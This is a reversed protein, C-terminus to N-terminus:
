HTPVAVHAPAVGLRAIGISKALKALNVAANRDSHALHGCSSCSFKHQIRSGLCGCASCSKSSYAPNVYIVRIGAAEAKYAIFDQLERWAWRHLRARLRKGGKIRKRIHTLTELVITSAGQKLAEGVMAKSAEHNVQRMHRREKGSVKKLLQRASQRGNSQLRRRLALHRDRVHRLPGGGLIKGSSTSALNNEGLDIGLIGSGKAPATDPWDLVLNFFWQKGRRVLKGEKPKGAALYQAQFEGPSMKVIARGTLTYLSVADGKLRYTRADFHVSGTERFRIVPIEDHRGLKLVKYADAVAKVANCVMQSGLRTAERVPYYALHHLAVRNWCRNDRAFPVILNCAKALESQLELLAQAQEPTPVLKISVTRKM